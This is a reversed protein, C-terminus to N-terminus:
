ISPCRDIFLYSIRTHCSVPQSLIRLFDSHLRFCPFRHLVSSFKFITQGKIYLVCRTETQKSESFCVTGENIRGPNDSISFTSLIREVLASRDFFKQASILSTMLIIILCRLPKPTSVTMKKTSLVDIISKRRKGFVCYLFWLITITLDWFVTRATRLNVQASMSSTLNTCRLQNEEQWFRLVLIVLYCQQLCLTLRTITLELFDIAFVSRAARLNVQAPTSGTFTIHFIISAGHKSKIQPLPRKSESYRIKGHLWLRSLSFPHTCYLMVICHGSVSFLSTM